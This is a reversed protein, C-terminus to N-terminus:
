VYMALSISRHKNKLRKIKEKRREGKDREERYATGSTRMCFTYKYLKKVHWEIINIERKTARYFGDIKIHNM